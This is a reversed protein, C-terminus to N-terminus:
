KKLGENLIYLDLLYKIAITNNKTNLATKLIKLALLRTQDLSVTIRKNGDKIM